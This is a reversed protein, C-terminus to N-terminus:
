ELPIFKVNTLEFDGESLWGTVEIMTVNAMPENFEDYQNCSYVAIAQDNPELRVNREQLAECRLGRNKEMAAVLSEVELNKTIASVNKAPSAALAPMASAVLLASLILLKM